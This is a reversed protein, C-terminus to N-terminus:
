EQNNDCVVIRVTVNEPIYSNARLSYGDSRSVSIIMGDEMGETGHQYSFEYHVAPNVSLLSRVDQENFMNPYAALNEWTVIYGSGSASEEEEGNTLWINQGKSVVVDVTGGINPHENLGIVQNPNIAENIQYTINGVGINAGQANMEDILAYLDDLSGSFGSLDPQGLSVNLTIKSKDETLVTGAPISQYILYNKPCTGSYSYTLKVQLGHETCWEVAEDATYSEFYVMLVATGKSVNVAISDGAKLKDGKSVSCSIINGAQITNSYSETKNVKLSNQEAWSELLSINKDVYDQPVTVTAAAKPGKSVTITLSSSRTFEAETINKLDYVIVQGEAVDDSNTQNVKTNTLKNEKIWSNIEALTMDYLDPFDIKESPDAGQSVVMTIKANKRIKTGPAINQSMIVDQNVDLSYEKEFLVGTSEIEYQRVWASFDSTTKGVFDPMEIKPMLFLFYCVAGIVALAAVTGIIVGAKVPKKEVKVVKEEAFSAPKKTEEALSGLFDKGEAM